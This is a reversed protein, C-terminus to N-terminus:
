SRSQTGRSQGEESENSCLNRSRNEVLPRRVPDDEADEGEELSEGGGDDEVVEGPVKGELADEDEPELERLEAHTNEKPTKQRQTMREDAPM